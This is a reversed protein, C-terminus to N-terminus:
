LLAQRGCGNGRVDDLGRAGIRWPQAPGSHSEFRVLTYIPVGYDKAMAKAITRWNQKSGYLGHCVVLGKTHQAVPRDTSSPEQVEYSLEVTRRSVASTAFARRAACPRARALMAGM